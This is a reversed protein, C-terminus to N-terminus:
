DRHHRPSSLAAHVRQVKLLVTAHGSVIVTYKVAYSGVNRHQWLNRVQVPGHLGVDKWAVTIRAPRTSRNFLALARSGTNELPKSWVQRGHDDSVMVAQVGRADQDIAIVEANQLMSTTAPSFTTLDRGIVLPATLMAWMSFQSRQEAASLTRAGAQLYDPDNWHGPGALYPHAADEDLNDLISGYPGGEWVVINNAPNNYGAAVDYGTRWGQAIAPGFRWSDHPLSANCIVFIVKRRSSNHSIARAFATYITAPDLGIEGGGCFDVKVADFGWAAFTNMDQQIHGYSGTNPGACGDRGTDTYIGAKLGRAHLYAVLRKMGHPWQTPDVQIAGDASRSGHWWGSDLWVLKYGKAAFGESVLRDATRRITGENFSVGYSYWTNWGMWPTAALSTTSPTRVKHAARAQPAEVLAGLAILAAAAGIRLVRYAVRM